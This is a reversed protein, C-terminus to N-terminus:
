LFAIRDGSPSWRAHSLGPRGRVLVSQSGSAVDIALLESRFENADYDARAVLVLVTRGDPSIQPDALRVLSRVDELAIARAQAPLRAPPHVAFVACAVALECSATRLKRRMRM